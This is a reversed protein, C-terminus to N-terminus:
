GLLRYKFAAWLGGLLWFLTSTDSPTSTFQGSQIAETKLQEQFASQEPLTLGGFTQQAQAIEPHEAYVAQVEQYNGAVPIPTYAGFNADWMFGPMTPHLTGTEPELATDRTTGTYPQEDWTTWIRSGDLNYGSVYVQGTAIQDFTPVIERLM